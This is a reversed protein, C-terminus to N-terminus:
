ARGYFRRREEATFVVGPEVTYSLVSNIRPTEGQVTTVSHPSYIGQFLTLTGARGASRVMDPHTGDLLQTLGEYNEDEATRLYPVYSFEGGAEPAQLLLTTVFDARDYHWNLQCGEELVMVNLPAMTDEHLYLQEYGVVAAIFDRLPEWNYIERIGATQPVLDYAISKQKTRQRRRAPHSAPLAPDDATFTVNHTMDQHYAKDIMPVMEAALRAATEATLFAVLSCKGTERLQSQCDAVLAQVAPAALDDIPYKELNVLTTMDNGGIAM